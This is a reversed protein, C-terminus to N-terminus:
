IGAERCPANVAKGKQVLNFIIGLDDAEVFAQPLCSDSDNGDLEERLVSQGTKISRFKLNRCFIMAFWLGVATRM